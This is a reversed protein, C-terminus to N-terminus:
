VQKSCCVPEPLGWGGIPQPQLPRQSWVTWGGAWLLAMLCSAWPQTWSPESFGPKTMKAGEWWTTINVLSIGRLGREECRFNRLSKPFPSLLIQRYICLHIWTNWWKAPMETTLSRFCVSFNHLKQSIVLKSLNDHSINIEGLVEQKRWKQGRKWSELHWQCFVSRVERNCEIIETNILSVSSISFIKTHRKM